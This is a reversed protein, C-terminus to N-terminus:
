VLAVVALLATVTGAVLWAYRGSLGRKYELGYRWIVTSWAATGITLITQIPELTRFPAKAAELASDQNAPTVTIPDFALYLIVVVVISAFLMPVLGWAAVAFSPVVGHQGGTLWSGVHLLLGLLLWVLPVAVLLQGATDNWAAWIQSDVDREVNRPQDCGSQDYVDTDDECVWDPPREPEPNDVLVTGDISSVVIWGLGYFVALVAITVAGVVALVRLGHVDREAFFTQPRVLPTLPPM